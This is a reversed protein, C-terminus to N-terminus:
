VVHLKADLFYVTGDAIAVPNLDLSVIDDHALAYEQVSEICRVVLDRHEAESVYKGVLDHIHARGVPASRFSVDEGVDTGGQGFMLLAGNRPDRQFGIVYEADHDILASLSVAGGFRSLLYSVGFAACEASPIGVLVGGQKARHPLDAEAKAVVPYTLGPLVRDLQEPTAVTVVAPWAGALGSLREQAAAGSVLRVRDTPQVVPSTSLREHALLSGDFPQGWSILTQAKAAAEKSGAAIPVGPWAKSQEDQVGAQGLVPSVIMAQKGAASVIRVFDDCQRVHADMAKGIPIGVAYVSAVVSFGPESAFDSLARNMEGVDNFAAAGVDFPNFLSVPRSQSLRDRVSESPTPLPIDHSSMVDALMIAAGGSTTILGLGGPAPRRYESEEIAEIAYVLEDADHVFIIGLQESIGRLIRHSSALSGTHSQAAISGSESSGGVDLVVPKNLRQAAQALRILPEISPVADVYIALGRCDDESLLHRGVTAYDVVRSNGLSVAASVGIKREQLSNLIGGLLGASQALVAFGGSKVPERLPATVAFLSGNSRLIGTSQPGLVPVGSSESWRVLAEEFEDFGSESGGSYVIVGDPLEKFGDLAEFCGSPPIFLFVLGPRGVVDATSAVSRIGRIQPTSRNVLNITGRYRGVVDGFLNALLYGVAV